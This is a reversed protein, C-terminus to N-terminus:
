KFVSCDPTKNGEVRYSSNPMVVFTIQNSYSADDAVQSYGIKVNDVFINATSYERFGYVFSLCVFIPRGSTNTYIVYNSFAQKAWKGIFGFSANKLYSLRVLDNNNRPDTNSLNKQKKKFVISLVLFNTYLKLMFNLM